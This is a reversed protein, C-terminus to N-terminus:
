ELDWVDDEDEDGEGAGDDEGEDEDEDEDGEDDDEDDEGDGLGALEARLARMKAMLSDLDSDDDDDDDGEVERIADEPSLGGFILRMLGPAYRNLMAPAVDVAREIIAIPPPTAATAHASKFRVEGDSFDMEFNGLLLGYNARTLYEAVALRKAEPVKFPFAAFTLIVAKRVVTSVRAGNLHETGISMDVRSRAENTHFTWGQSEYYAKVQQFIASM